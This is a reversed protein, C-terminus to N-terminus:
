NPLFINYMAQISNFINRILINCYKNEKRKASELVKGCFEQFFFGELLGLANKIEYIIMLKYFSDQMSELDSILKANFYDTNEINSPNQLLINVLINANKLKIITKNGKSLTNTCISYNQGLPACAAWYRISDVSYLSLLDKISIDENKKSKSLKDGSSNVCWGNVFLSAWPSTNSGALQNIILSYYVWKRIIDSGCPRVSIQMDYPRGLIRNHYMPTLASIFWTDLKFKKNLKLPVGYNSTRSIEWPMGGPPNSCWDRLIHKGDSPCWHIFRESVSIAYNRMNETINLTVGDEDCTVHEKVKKLMFNIEKKLHKRTNFLSGKDYSIKVTDMVYFIDEYFKALSKEKQKLIATPTGSDDIGFPFYVEVGQYRYFRAIIDIQIYSMLHGVHLKGSLTPPPTDITFM